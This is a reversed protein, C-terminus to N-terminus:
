VVLFFAWWRQLTPPSPLPLPPPGQWQPQRTLRAFELVRQFGCAIVIAGIAKVLDDAHIADRGFRLVHSHTGVGPDTEAAYLVDAM